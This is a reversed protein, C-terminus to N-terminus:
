TNRSGRERLCWGPRVMNRLSELEKDLDIRELVSITLTPLGFRLDKFSGMPQVLYNMERFDIGGANKHAGGKNREQNTLSSSSQQNQINNYISKFIEESNFHKAVIERAAEIAKRKSDFADFRSAHAYDWGPSWDRTLMYKEGGNHHVIGKQEYVTYEADELLKKVVKNNNSSIMDILEGISFYPMAVKRAAEIAERKSYFPDFRSAHAYDWGPSWDRTLMYKEGGNHHVIGEQEYVTYEADELIKVDVPASTRDTLLLFEVVSRLEMTRTITKINGEGKRVSEIMAILKKSDYVSESGEIKDIQEIKSYLMSFNRADKIAIDKVAAKRAVEIVEKKDSYKGVILAPMADTAM